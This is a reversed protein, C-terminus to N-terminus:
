ALELTAKISPTASVPTTQPMTRRSPALQIALRNSRLLQFVSAITASRLDRSSRTAIALRICCRRARSAVRIVTTGASALLSAALRRWSRVASFMRSTLCAPRPRDRRALAAISANRARRAGIQLVWVAPGSGSPRTPCSSSVIADVNCSDDPSARSRTSMPRAPTREPSKGSDGVYRGCAISCLVIAAHFVLKVQEAHDNRAEQEPVHEGIEEGTDHALDHPPDAEIAMDPM